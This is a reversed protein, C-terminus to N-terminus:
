PGFRPITPPPMLPPDPPEIVPWDPQWEPVEKLLEVLDEALETVKRHFRIYDRSKQFVPEPIALKKFDWRSIAKAADPFNNSDSYLIPYVLGQPRDASALGLLRERARMSEWEAMCWRSEFYPPTFLPVMIKSHLLAKGLVASWDVGRSMGKDVFVRPAPAVQDALCEKFKPYFHNMLWRAVSSRGPYSIFVEFHYGSV